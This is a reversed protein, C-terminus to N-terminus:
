EGFLLSRATEDHENFTGAERERDYADIMLLGREEASLNPTYVAANYSARFEDEWAGVPYESPHKKFHGYYEHALVARSSM